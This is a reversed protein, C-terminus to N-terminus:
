PPSLRGQGDARDGGGADDAGHRGAGPRPSARQGSRVRRQDQARGRRRRLVAAGASSRACTAVATPPPAARVTWALALAHPWHAASVPVGRVALAWLAGDPGTDQAGLDLVDADDAARDGRTARDLQQAHVRYRRVQTATVKMGSRHWGGGVRDVSGRRSVRGVVATEGGGGALKLVMAVRVDVEPARDPADVDDRGEPLLVDPVALQPLDPPLADGPRGPSLVGGGGGFCARGTRITLPTHIPLACRTPPVAGADARRGRGRDAWRRSPSANVNSPRTIMMAARSHHASDPVAPVPACRTAPVNPLTPTATGSTSSPRAIRSVRCGSRTSAFPRIPTPSAAM